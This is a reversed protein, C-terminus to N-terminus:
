GISAKLKAAKTAISRDFKSWDSELIEETSFVKKLVKSPIPPTNKIEQLKNGINGTNNPKNPDEQDVYGLILADINVVETIPFGKAFNSDFRQQIKESIIKLFGKYKISDQQKSDQSNKIERLLFELIQKKHTPGLNKFNNDDKIQNFENYFKEIIQLESASILDYYDHVTGNQLNKMYIDIINSLAAIHKFSSHKSIVAQHLCYYLQGKLDYHIWYYNPDKNVIHFLDTIYSDIYKFYAPHNVYFLRVIRKNFKILHETFILSIFFPISTSMILLFLTGLLINHSVFNLVCFYLNPIFITFFVVHKWIHKLAAIALSKNDLEFRNNPKATLGLGCYCFVIKRLFYLSSIILLTAIMLAFTQNESVGNILNLKHKVFMVISCALTAVISALLALHFYKYDKDLTQM